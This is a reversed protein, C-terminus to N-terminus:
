FRMEQLLTYCAASCSDGRVLLHYEYHYESEQQTQRYDACLFLVPPVAGFIPTKM